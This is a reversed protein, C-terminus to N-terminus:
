LKWGFFNLFKYLKSKNLKEHYDKHFREIYKRETIESIIENMKDRSYISANENSNFGYRTNVGYIDDASFDFLPKKHSRGLLSLQLRLNKITDANAQIKKLRQYEGVDIM